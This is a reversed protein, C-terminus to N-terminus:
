PAAAPPTGPELLRQLEQMEEATAEQRTLETLRAARQEARNRAAALEEFTLFPQGDPYRVVLEPGTLDFGIGLRPSVFGNMQGMRRLVDGRRTYARLAETDPNYVYFGEVGYEESFAHKDILEIGTNRPSLVAFVVTMPVGGEEWQKWSPRHGKPRGFVVYVDPALVIDPEGEVPYWNQNGGVFVDSREQFLRGPQRGPGHDM